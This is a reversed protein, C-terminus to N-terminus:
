MTVLVLFNEPEVPEGGSESDSEEELVVLACADSVFTLHVESMVILIQARSDTGSWGCLGSRREKLLVGSAIWSSEYFVIEQMSTPPM